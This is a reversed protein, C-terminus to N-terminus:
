ECELFLGFSTPCVSSNLIDWNQHSSHDRQEAAPKDLRKAELPERVRM